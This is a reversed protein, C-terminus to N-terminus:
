GDVVGRDETKLHNLKLTAKQSVPHTMLEGVSRNKQGTARKNDWARSCGSVARIFENSVQAGITVYAVLGSYLAVHSGIDKLTESFTSSLLSDSGSSAEKKRNAQAVASRQSIQALPNAM